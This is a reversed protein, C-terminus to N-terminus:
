TTATRRWGPRVLAHTGAATISASMAGTFSKTSRDSTPARNSSIVSTSSVRSPRVMSIARAPPPQCMRLGASRLTLASAPM